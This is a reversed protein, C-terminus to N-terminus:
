RSPRERLKGSIRDGPRYDKLTDKDGRFAQTTGDSMRVSMTGEDPNVSIVEGSWREPAKSGPSAAGQSRDSKKVKDDDAWAAPAALFAALTLAAAIKMTTM